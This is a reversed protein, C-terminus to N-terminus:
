PCSAAWQRIRGALFELPESFLDCIPIKELYNDDWAINYENVLNRIDNYRYGLVEKKKSVPLLENYEVHLLLLNTVYEDSTRLPLIVIPAGDAKGKGIYVHGTSVITRKVGM